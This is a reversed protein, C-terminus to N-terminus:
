ERRLNREESVVGEEERNRFGVFEMEVVVVVALGESEREIEVELEVIAYLIEGAVEM